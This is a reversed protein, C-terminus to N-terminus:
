KNSNCKKYINPINLTKKTKTAKRCSGKVNKYLDMMDLIVVAGGKDGNTNVIDDRVKLEALVKQERESLNSYKPQKLKKLKLALIM